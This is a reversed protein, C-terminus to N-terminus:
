STLFEVFDPNSTMRPIGLLRSMYQELGTQRETIFETSFFKEGHAKNVSRPRSVLPCVWRPRGTDRSHCLPHHKFSLSAVWPAAWAGFIRTDSYMKQFGREPLLPLSSLLHSSKYAARIKTDLAMFDNFRKEQKHEVPGQLDDRCHTTLKKKSNDTEFELCLLM